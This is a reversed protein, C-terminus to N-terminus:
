GFLEARRNELVNLLQKRIEEPSAVNIERIKRALEVDGVVNEIWNAFDQLSQHHVITEPPVERLAEIFSFMNWAQKGLPKGPGAYFYFKNRRPPKADV